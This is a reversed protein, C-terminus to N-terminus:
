QIVEIPSGQAVINGSSDVTVDQYWFPKRTVIQCGTTCVTIPDFRTLRPYYSIRKGQAVGGGPFASPAPFAMTTLDPVAGASQAYYTTTQGPTACPDTADSSPNGALAAYYSTLGNIVNKYIRGGSIRIVTLDITQAYASASQTTGSINLPVDAFCVIKLMNGFSGYTTMTSFMPGLYPAAGRPQLNYQQEATSLRFDRSIAAWMRATPYEQNIAQGGITLGQAFGYLGANNGSFWNM